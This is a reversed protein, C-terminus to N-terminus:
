GELKKRLKNNDIVDYIRELESIFLLYNEYYLGNKLNLLAEIYAIQKKIYMIDEKTLNDLEHFFKIQYLYHEVLILLHRSTELDVDSNIEKDVNMNIINKQKNYENNIRKYEYEIIQEDTLRNNNVKYADIEYKNLLDYLQGNYEDKKNLFIFNNISKYLRLLITRNLEDTNDVIEHFLENLNDYTINNNM